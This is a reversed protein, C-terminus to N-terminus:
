SNKNIETIIKKLELINEKTDEMETNLCKIVDNPDHMDMIAQQLMKTTVAKFDKDPLGLMTTM